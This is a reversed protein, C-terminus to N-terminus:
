EEAIFVVDELTGAYQGLHGKGPSFVGRLTVPRGNFHELSDTEGPARRLLQRAFGVSLARGFHHERRDAESAYLAVDEFAYQFVGHVEVPADLFRAPHRRLTAVSCRRYAAAPLAGPAQLTLPADCSAALTLLSLRLAILFSRRLIM